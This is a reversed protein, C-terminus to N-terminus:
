PGVHNVPVEGEELAECLEVRRFLVGGRVLVPVLNRSQADADDLQFVSDRPERDLVIRRNIELRYGVGRRQGGHGSRRDGLRERVLVEFRGISLTPGWVRGRGLVGEDMNDGHRDLVDKVSIVRSSARLEVAEIFSQLFHAASGPRWGCNRDAQSRM